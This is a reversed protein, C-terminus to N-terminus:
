RTNAFSSSQAAPAAATPSAVLSLPLPLQLLLLLLLLVTAITATMPMTNNVIAIPDIILILPPVWPFPPPTPSVLFFCPPSVLVNVHLPRWSLVDGTKVTSGSPTTPPCHM